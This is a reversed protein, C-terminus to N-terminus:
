FESFIKLDRVIEGLTEPRVGGRCLDDLVKVASERSRGVVELSREAGRAIGILYFCAGWEEWEYLDYAITGEWRETLRRVTPLVADECLVSKEVDKTKM